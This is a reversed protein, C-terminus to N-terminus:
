LYLKGFICLSIYWDHAVSVTRIRSRCCGHSVSRYAQKQLLWNAGTMPVFKKWLRRIRNLDVICEVGFLCVPQSGCESRFVARARNKTQAIYKFLVLRIYKRKIAKPKQKTYPNKYRRKGNNKLPERVDKDLRENNEMMQMMRIQTATQCILSWIRSRPQDLRNRCTNPPPNRESRTQKKTTKSEFSAIPLNRKKTKLKRM